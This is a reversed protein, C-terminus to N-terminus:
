RWCCKAPPRQRRSTPSSSPVSRLTSCSTPWASCATSRRASRTASTALFSSKARNAAEAQDRAHALAQEAEVRATVDRGVGQVESGNETRVPAKAGPSGARPAPAQSRQDYIRTGDALVIAAGQASVPLAGAVDGSNGILADRRRGALACYADNAYTIRGEGDRRVILDGQAELLSRAREEAERLEWQEDALEDIRAELRRIKRSRTRRRILLYAIATCAVALLAAVGIAYTNPDYNEAQTRTGAVFGIIASIASLTIVVSRGFLVLAAHDRARKRHKATISNTKSRM